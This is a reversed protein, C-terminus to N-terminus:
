YRDKERMVWARLRERTEAGSGPAFLVGIVLGYTFFKMATRIRTLVTPDKREHRASTLALM